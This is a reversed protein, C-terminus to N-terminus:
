IQVQKSRQRRAKQEALIASFTLGTAAFVVTLILASLEFMLPRVFGPPVIKSALLLLLVVIALVVDSLHCRLKSAGKVVFLAALGFGGGSRLIHGSYLFITTVVLMAFALCLLAVNEKYGIAM